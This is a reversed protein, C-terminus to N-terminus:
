FQLSFAFKPDDWHEEEEEKAPCRVTITTTPHMLTAGNYKSWIVKNTSTILALTDWTVEENTKFVDESVYRFSIRNHKGDYVPEVGLACHIAKKSIRELDVFKNPDREDFFEPRESLQCLALRLKGKFLRGKGTVLARCMAQLAWNHIM